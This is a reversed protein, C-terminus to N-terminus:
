PRGFFKDFPLDVPKGHVVIDILAGLLPLDDPQIADREFMKPLAASMARVIEVSEL